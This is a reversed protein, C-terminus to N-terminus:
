KQKYLEKRVRERLYLNDIDELKRYGCKIAAIWWGVYM